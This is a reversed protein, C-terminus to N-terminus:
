SYNVYPVLYCNANMSDIKHVIDHECTSIKFYNKHTTILRAIKLHLFLNVGKPIMLQHYFVKANPHRKKLKNVARAIHARKRNIIYYSGKAAEDNVKLIVFSHTSADGSCETAYRATFCRMQNLKDQTNIIISGAVALETESQAITLEESYISVQKETLDLIKQTHIRVARENNLEAQFQLRCKM